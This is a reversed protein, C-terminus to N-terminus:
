KTLPEPQRQSAHWASQRAFLEIYKIALAPNNQLSHRIENISILRKKTQEKSLHRRALEIIALAFKNIQAVNAILEANRMQCGDQGFDVDLVHHLQNEIGWHRRIVRHILKEVDDEGAPLSTIFYRVAESTKDRKGDAHIVTRRSIQKAICGFELGFWHRRIDEPVLEGPLVFTERSEERGHAKEREEVHKDVQSKEFLEEVCTVLRGQNKKLALLYDARAENMLTQVFQRQCHMADGTVISGRLELRKALKLAAPIENSKEDILTQAFAIGTETSYFSLFQHQDGKSNTSARVVQGDTAVVHRDGNSAAPDPLLPFVLEQFLAQFEEPRITRLLRNASSISPALKPIETEWRTKFFDLHQDWYCAGLKPGFEGGMAACLFVELTPPLPFKVKSQQRPDSLNEALEHLANGENSADEKRYLKRVLPNIDGSDPDKEGIKKSAVYVNFQKKADYYSLRRYVCIRGTSKDKREFTDVVLQDRIEQPLNKRVTVGSFVFSM